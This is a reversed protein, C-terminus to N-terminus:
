AALNRVKGHWPQVRHWVHSTVAIRTCIIARLIGNEPATVRGTVPTAVGAIGMGTVAVTAGTDVRDGGVEAIGLVVASIFPSHVM